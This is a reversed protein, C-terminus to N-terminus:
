LVKRKWLSKVKRLNSYLRPRKVFQFMMYRYVYGFRTPNILNCYFTSFAKRHQENFSVDMPFDFLNSENMCNESTAKTTEAITNVCNTGSGDMGINDVLSYPPHLSLGNNLFVTGYWKIAWTNLEGTINLSLQSSFLCSRDFDFKELVKTESLQNFIHIPDDIYQSWKNSWTAWGWCSTTPIFLPRKSNIELPDLYASIHYVQDYCQYFDLAKCMFEYFEPKTVIDDEVVICATYEKLIASVSSVISKALGFNNERHIVQINPFLYSLSEIARRTEKVSREAEVSKPGDCFIYIPAVSIGVNKSLAILTETIHKERNYAFVCVPYIKYKM